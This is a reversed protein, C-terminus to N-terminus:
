GELWVKTQPRPPSSVGRPAIPSQLPAPGRATGPPWPGRQAPRRPLEQRPKLANISKRRTKNNTELGHTKESCSLFLVQSGKDNESNIVSSPDGQTASGQNKTVGGGGRSAAQAAAESCPAPPCRPPHKPRRPGPRRHEPHRARGPGVHGQGEQCRPTGLADLCGPASTVWPPEFRPTQLQQPGSDGEEQSGLRDAWSSGLPPCTDGSPLRQPQPSRGRGGRSSRTEKRQAHREQEPRASRLRHSLSLKVGSPDRKEEGSLLARLM